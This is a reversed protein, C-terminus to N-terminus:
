GHVIPRRVLVCAHISLGELLSTYHHMIGYESYIGDDHM